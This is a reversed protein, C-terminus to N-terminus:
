KGKDEPAINWFLRDGAGTFPTALTNSSTLKRVNQTQAFCTNWAEVCGVCVFGDGLDKFQGDEYGKKLKRGNKLFINSPFNNM